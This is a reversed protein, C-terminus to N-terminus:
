LGEYWSKRVLFFGTISPFTLTAGLYSGDYVTPNQFGFFFMWEDVGGPLLSTDLVYDAVTDDWERTFIPLMFEFERWYIPGVRPFFQPPDLPQGGYGKYLKTTAQNIVGWIDFLSTGNFNATSDPTKLSAINIYGDHMAAAASAWDVLNFATGNDDPNITRRARGEISNPVTPSCYAHFDYLVLHPPKTAEMVHIYSNQAQQFSHGGDPVHTVGTSTVGSHPFGGQPKSMNNLHGGHIVQDYEPLVLPINNPDPDDNNRAWVPNEGSTLLGLGNNLLPDNDDMLKQVYDVQGQRWKGSSLVSQGSQNAVHAPNYPDYFSRCEDNVGDGNFDNNNSKPGQLMVDNFIGDLWGGGEDIFHEQVYKAYFQPYRDGIGDPQTYDTINTNQSTGFTIVIDGNGKRGWWDNNGAGWFAEAGTPGDEAYLKDGKEGSDGAEMLDTYDFIYINHGKATARIKIDEYVAARQLYALNGNEWPRTFGDSTQLGLHVVDCWSIADREAEGDVNNEAYVRSSIRITGFRPFPIDLDLDFVKFSASNPSGLIPASVPGSVYLPNSLDVTGNENTDVEQATVFVTKQTESVQFTETGSLPLVTANIVAWDITCVQDVRVTRLITFQIVTNENGSYSTADLSFQAQAEPPDVLDLTADFVLQTTKAM